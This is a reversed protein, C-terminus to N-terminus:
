SELRKESLVFNVTTHVIYVPFIFVFIFVNAVPILSVFTPFLGIRLTTIKNQFLWGIKRKLPWRHEGAPFDVFLLTNAGVYILFAAVQGIFPIFNIIFAIISLIIMVVSVKLAQLIDTIIGSFNFPAGASHGRFLKESRAALFSYLPSTINYAILFSLYFSIVTSIILFMGKLIWWGALSFYHYWAETAPAEMFFTEGGTFSNIWEMVHIGAFITIAFTICLILISLLILSKHKLFFGLSELINIYKKKDQMAQKINM